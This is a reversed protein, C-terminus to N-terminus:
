LSIFKNYLYKNDDYEDKYKTYIDLVFNNLKTKDIMKFISNNINNYYYISLKKKIILDSKQKYCLIINKIYLYGYKELINYKIYKIIIDLDYYLINYKKNLIKDYLYKLIFQKYRKKISCSIIDNLLNSFINKYTNDYEYIKHLINNPLKYLQVM